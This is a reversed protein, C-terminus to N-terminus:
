QSDPATHDQQVLTVSVEKVTWMGKEWDGLKRLGQSTYSLLDLCM